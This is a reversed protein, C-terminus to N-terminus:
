CFAQKYSRLLDGCYVFTRQPYFDERPRLIFTRSMAQMTLVKVIIETLMVILYTYAIAANPKRVKGAPVHGRSLCSLCHRGQSVYMLLM